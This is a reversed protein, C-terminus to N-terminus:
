LEIRACVCSPRTDLHLFAKYFSQQVVDQADERNRTIRFAVGFIKTEHRKVLFDFAESRRQKTAAVLMADPQERFTRTTLESTM